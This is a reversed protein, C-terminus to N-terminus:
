WWDGKLIKEGFIALLLAGTILMFANDSVLDASALDGVLINRSNEEIARAAQFVAYEETTLSGVKVTSYEFGKETMSWIVSEWVRDYATLLYMAAKGKIPMKYFRDRWRKWRRRHDENLFFAPRRTLQMIELRKLVAPNSKYLTWALRGLTVNGEKLRDPLRKCEVMKCTQDKIFHDCNVCEFTKRKEENDTECHVNGSTWMMMRELKWFPTGKMYYRTM